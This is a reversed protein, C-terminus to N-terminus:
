AAFHTERPFLLPKLNIVYRKPMPPYFTYVPPHIQKKSMISMEYYSPVQM